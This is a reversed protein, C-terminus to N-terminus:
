SSLRKHVAYAIAGGLAIRIMWIFIGYCFELFRLRDRYGGENELLNILKDLQTKLQDIKEEFAEHLPCIEQSLKM